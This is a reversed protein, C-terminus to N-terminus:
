QVNENKREKATKTESNEFFVKTDFRKEQKSRNVKNSQITNQMASENIAM